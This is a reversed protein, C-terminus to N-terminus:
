IKRSLEAITDKIDNYKKSEECKSNMGIIENLNVLNCREKFSTFLCTKKTQWFVIMKKYDNFNAQINKDNLKFIVADSKKVFYKVNHLPISSDYKARDLEYLHRLKKFIRAFKQVLSIKKQIRNNDDSVDLLEDLKFVEAFSYYNKYYQVFEENPDMVIRSLDDFCVGVTGNGLLYGLNNNSFLHKSVFFNPINYNKINNSNINSSYCNEYPCYNNNNKISTNLNLKKQSNENEDSIKISSTSPQNISSNRIGSYNYSSRSRIPTPVTLIKSGILQNNNLSSALRKQPCIGINQFQSAKQFLSVKQSPPAPIIPQDLKYLQVQEKDYKMLFPHKLLDIANPRKSVDKRLTKQIFDRAEFSLPINPPFQLENNKIKDFTIEKNGGDFPARGILMIFASIGIAWVDAKFGNASKDKKLIEPSMYNPTGCISPKSEDDDNYFISLGFDALKVKGNSGILFNELKLDHHIIRHNHLYIVGHIVDKLIRRTESENLRGQDNKRLFDRISKGPCYDLIIYYNFEDSFSNKSRVVNQHNISKQIKMENKLKELSVQGKSGEYQKKSIVKMAYSKNTDQQTVRYVVAFGGRGLEENKIYVTRIGNDDVNVIKSPVFISSQPMLFIIIHYKASKFNIDYISGFLSDIM